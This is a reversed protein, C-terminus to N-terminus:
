RAAPAIGAVFEGYREFGETSQPANVYGSDRRNQDLQMRGLVQRYADSLDLGLDRYIQEITGQIDTTFQEFTTFAVERRQKLEAAFGILKMCEDLRFRLNAESWGSLGSPDIGHKALTCVNSMTVYSRVFGQPPRVIVLYRADPFVRGILRYLAVSENEKTLWTRGEGRYYAVKMVVQRFTRMLKRQERTSLEDVKAIRDLVEVFPFRRFSFYHHYMREEFFIGHEEVSGLKHHHIKSATKGVETRPWYDIAEIRSRLQFFDILKWLCIFPFRWEFHKLSFFTNPDSSLTRLLFTTGSRPQSAIFVPRALSAKLYRRFFALDLYWLITYFPAYILEKALHRLLRAKQVMNIERNCLSAKTFIFFSRWLYFPCFYVLFLYALVCVALIM